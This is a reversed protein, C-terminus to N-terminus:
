SAMEDAGGERSERAERIRRLRDAMSVIHDQAGGEGRQKRILEQAPSLAAPGSGGSAASASQGSTKQKVGDEIGKAIKAEVRKERVMDDYADKVNSFRRNVKGQENIYDNVKKLDFPENPFEREHQLRIQTMLDANLLTATLLEGSLKPLEDKTVVKKELDGFKASISQNLATLQATIASLDAGTSQTTASAQTTQQTQQTAQTPQQTTAQTTQTTTTTDDSLYEKRMTLGEELALKAKDNKLVTERLIAQETPSLLGLLDDLANTPTAM